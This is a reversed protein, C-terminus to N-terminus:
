ACPLLSRCRRSGPLASARRVNDFRAKSLVRSVDSLRNRDRRVNRWAARRSRVSCCSRLYLDSLGVSTLDRLTGSIAKIVKFEERHSRQTRQTETTGVAEVVSVCLVCLNCLSVPHSKHCEP